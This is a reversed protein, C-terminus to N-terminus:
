QLRAAPMDMPLGMQREADTMARAKVLEGTDTRVERVQLVDYDLVIEVDVDRYEARTKVVTAIARQADYLGDLAEKMQKKESAQADETQEIKQTLTALKEGREILEEDTLTCSLNRKETRRVENGHRM